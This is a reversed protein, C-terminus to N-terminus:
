QAACAALGCSIMGEPSLRTGALDLVELKAINLLSVLGDGSQPGLPNHSLVLKTISPNAALSMALEPLLACTAQVRSLNLSTLSQNTSVHGLLRGVLEDNWANGSVDLHKLRASTQIATGLAECGEASIDHRGQEALSLSTLTTNHQLAEALKVFGANGIKCQKLSLTQLVACGFEDDPLSSSM